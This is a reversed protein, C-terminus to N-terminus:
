KNGTGTFVKGEKHERSILSTHFIGNGIVWEGFISALSQQHAKKETNFIFEDSQRVVFIGLHLLRLAIEFPYATGKKRDLSQSRSRSRLVENNAIVVALQAINIRRLKRSKNTHNATM